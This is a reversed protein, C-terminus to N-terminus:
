EDKFISTGHWIKIRWNEQASQGQESSDLNTDDAYV